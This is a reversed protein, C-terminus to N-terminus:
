STVKVRGERHDKLLKIDADVMLKALDVFKTKPAWGLQRKAKSYDGILLDVEAPRYYREDIEVYPKWDMGAHGFAVDLFERISHPRQVWAVRARINSHADPLELTVWSNRPLHHKSTYQCGHLNFSLTSTREEFPQGLLDTGRVILPLAEFLRESRRREKSTHASNVSFM